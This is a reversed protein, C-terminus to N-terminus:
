IFFVDQRIFAVWADQLISFVKEAIYKQPVSAGRQQLKDPHLCLRAKQYAKKVHSSEVLSTQPIPYWLSNPWIIYHLTSLLLRINTEKGASWLRLDENLKDMEIMPSIMMERVDVQQDYFEYVIPREETEDSPKKESAIDSSSTQSKQRVWAIAEDVSVAAEGSRERRDSNIEFVYSSMVENEEQKVVVEEEEEQTIHNSYIGVKPESEQCLSSAPTSPSNPENDYLVQSVQVSPYSNPELSITEPSTVRRWLGHYSCSNHNENNDNEMYQQKNDISYSHNCPFYAAMTHEKSQEQPLMTANNWRYPVNIPRLKSAFSSLGVDDGIGRRLPSLEESSLVSSSNSKSKSRQMSRDRSRWGRCGSGDGEEAGFIDGFFGEYGDKKTIRFAPFSLGANGKEPSAEEYFSVPGSSEGLIKRWFISRPPGGFVDSFDIPDLAEATTAGSSSSSTPQLSPRRPLTQTVMRMRWSEDM